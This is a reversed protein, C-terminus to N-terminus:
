QALKEPIFSRRDRYSGGDRYGEQMLRLKNPM